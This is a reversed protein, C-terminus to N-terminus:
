RNTPQPAVEPTTKVSNNVVIKAGNRLKFAGASVVEKGAEIGEEIAVFDGREEGLRVFQQRAQKISPDQPASEGKTPVIPEVLFVSDGYPAHVVATAPVAIISPQKPLVVQVTAFMGPRFKQEPNPVSARVRLNRTNTDLSPDVATITGDVSVKNQAEISMRVAQGVRISGLAQQPLTFDVFVSDLADLTTLVTGPSLYQGLNVARIGLRGAFPARIVKRAIQAELAAIDATTTKLQAEDTELQSQPIVQGASLTRSRTLTREALERRALAMDLQAREVSTDLEVLIQGPKAVNGSDFQIRKVVGPSENSIDVGRVAAISGVASLTGEWSLERSLESNVSEPPPGSKAFAEGAKMLNSIQSFKVGALGGVLLLLGLIPLFYRVPAV